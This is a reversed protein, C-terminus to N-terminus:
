HHGKKHLTYDAGDAAAGALLAGHKTTHSLPM